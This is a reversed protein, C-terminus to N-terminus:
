LRALAYAAAQDGLMAAVQVAEIEVRVSWAWSLDDTRLAQVEGKCNHLNCFSDGVAVATEEDPIAQFLTILTM